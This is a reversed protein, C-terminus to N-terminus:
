EDPLNRQSCRNSIGYGRILSIRLPRAHCVVSSVRRAPNSFNPVMSSATLGRSEMTHTVDSLNPLDDDLVPIGVAATSESKHAECRIGLGVGCNVAHVVLLSNRCTRTQANRVLPFLKSPRTMRTSRADLLALERPFSPPKWPRPPYLRKSPPLM